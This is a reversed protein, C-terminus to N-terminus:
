LRLGKWPETKPHFEDTCYFFSTNKLHGMLEKWLSTVLEGDTCTFDVGWDTEKVNISKKDIPQGRAIIRADTLSVSKDNIFCKLANELEKIDTNWEKIDTNWEKIDTDWKASLSLALFLGLLLISLQTLRKM